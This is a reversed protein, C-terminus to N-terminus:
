TCFENLHLFKFGGTFFLFKPSFHLSPQLLEAFAIASVNVCVRSTHYTNYPHLFISLLYSGEEVIISLISLLRNFISSQELTSTIQWKQVNYYKLGGNNWEPPLYVYAGMSTKTSFKSRAGMPLELIPFQSHTIMRLARDSCKYLSYVQKM